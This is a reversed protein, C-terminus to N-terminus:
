TLSAPYLLYVLIIFILTCFFVNLQMFPNYSFLDNLCICKLFYYSILFNKGKEEMKEFVSLASSTNVDGLMESM